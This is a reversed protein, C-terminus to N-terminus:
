PPADCDPAADSCNLVTSVLLSPRTDDASAWACAARRESNAFSSVLLSPWRDSASNSLSFDPLEGPAPEGPALEGRGAEGPDLGAGPADPLGPADLSLAPLREVSGAPAAGCDSEESEASYPGLPLGPAAPAGPE